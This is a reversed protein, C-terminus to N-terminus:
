YIQHLLFPYDQYDLRLFVVRFSVVEKWVGVVVLFLEDLECDICYSFFMVQTCYQVDYFCEVQGECIEEVVVFYLVEM